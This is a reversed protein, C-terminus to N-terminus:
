AFSFVDEKKIRFSLIFIIKEKRIKMKSSVANFIGYEGINQPM